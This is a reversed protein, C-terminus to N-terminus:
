RYATVVQSGTATHHSNSVYYHRMQTTHYFSQSFVLPVADLGERLRWRVSSLGFEERGSSAWM